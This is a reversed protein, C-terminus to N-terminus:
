VDVEWSYKIVQVGMAVESLRLWGVMWDRPCCDKEKRVTGPFLHLAEVVSRHLIATSTYKRTLHGTDGQLFMTKCAIPGLYHVVSGLGMMRDMQTYNM